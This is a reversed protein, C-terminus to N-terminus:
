RFCGLQCARIRLGMENCHRGIERPATGTREALELLFRCPVKGDKAARRIAQRIQQKTAM